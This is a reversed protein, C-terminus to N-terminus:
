FANLQMPIEETVDRATFAFGKKESLIVAARKIVRSATICADMPVSPRSRRAMPDMKQAILGAILGALADGTGGVTLGADGGSVEQLSGDSGAIRDTPGKCHITVAYKKAIAALNKPDVGLRELEGMHPTLVANKGQAAELTWSQLASADLVIACPASAILERIINQSEQSRDLGPGIVASDMTALLELLPRLDKKSIEDGAFPHVQFNLSTMRAIQQHLAPLAVFVLDVGAHEAALASLLPAGHMTKSGGIIAVKGNEGKHSHPDRHM